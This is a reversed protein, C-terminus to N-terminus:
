EKMKLEKNQYINGVIEIDKLNGFYIESNACYNKLSKGVGKSKLMIGYCMSFYVEGIIFGSESLVDGEYIEVGNKDTLGTFQMVYSKSLLASNNLSGDTNISLFCDVNHTILGDETNYVRFKIDRM